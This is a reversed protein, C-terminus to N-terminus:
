WAGAPTGIGLGACRRHKLVKTGLVIIADQFLADQIACRRNLRRGIALRCRGPEGAGRPSCKRSFIVLNEQLNLRASLTM